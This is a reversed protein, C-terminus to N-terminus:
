KDSFVTKKKVGLIFRAQNSYDRFVKIKMIKAEKMLNKVEEAQDHGIEFIIVSNNIFKKQDLGLIIKKYCDLGYKGGDLSILPDYCKVEPDLSEIVESKIYPPNAIIVNFDFNVFIDLWNCCIFNIQKLVNNKRANQNATKLSIQNIDTSICECKPFIRMLAISIAGSGTGLELIKNPELNLNIIIDILLETEKRPAFTNRNLSLEFDRFTTKNLIRNIPERNLRRNLAEQILIKQNKSLLLDEDIIQNELNIGIIERILLRIEKQASAIGAKNLKKVYLHVLSKLTM